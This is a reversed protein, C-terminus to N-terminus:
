LAFFKRTNMGKKRLWDEAKEIDGGTEELAKKCDGMGIGTKERLQKVLQASVQAM